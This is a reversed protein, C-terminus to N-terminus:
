EATLLQTNLPKSCLRATQTPHHETAMAKPQAAPCFCSSPRLACAVLVLITGCSTVHCALSRVVKCWRSSSMRKLLMITCWSGNNPPSHCGFLEYWAPVYCALQQFSLFITCLFRPWAPVHMDLKSTVCSLQVRPTCSLCSCATQQYGLIGFLLLACPAPVFMCNATLHCTLVRGRYM